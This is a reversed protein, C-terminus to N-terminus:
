GVSGGLHGHKKPSKLGLMYCIDKYRLCAVYIRIDTQKLKRLSNEYLMLSALTKSHRRRALGKM